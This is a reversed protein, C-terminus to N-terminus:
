KLSNCRRVAFPGCCPNDPSKAVDQNVESSRNMQETLFLFLSELNGFGYREGTRADELSARWGSSDRDVQWLRLMYALYRGSTNGM